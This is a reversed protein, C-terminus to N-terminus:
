ATCCKVLNLWAATARGNPATAVIQRCHVQHTSDVAGGRSVEEFLQKAARSGVEEPVAAEEGQLIRRQDDPQAAMSTTCGGVV